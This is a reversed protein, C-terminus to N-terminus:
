KEGSAEAKKSEKKPFRRSGKNKAASEDTGSRPGKRWGQIIPREMGSGNSTRPGVKVIRKFSAKKCCRGDKLSAEMFARAVKRIKGGGAETHHGTRATKTTVSRNEAWKKM